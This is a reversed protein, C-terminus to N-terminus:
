RMEGDLLIVGDVISAPTLRLLESRRLGTLAALMIVDQLAPGAAGALVQVQPVTLYIHRSTEGPMMEVRKGVPVDIWGWKVALNGVRRLIALYRNISAPKLPKRGDVTPRVAGAKLLEAVEPIEDLHRGASFQRVLAIRYRLNEPYSKLHRASTEEWRELAESILRRPQQGTARDIIRRRLTAELAEADRRTAGPPLTREIRRGGGARLRVEWRNGHRRISM